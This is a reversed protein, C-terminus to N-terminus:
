APVNSSAFLSQLVIAVYCYLIDSEQVSRAPKKLFDYKSM